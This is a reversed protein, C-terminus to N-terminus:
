YNLVVIENITGRKGAKSNIARRAEVIEIRLTKIRFRAYLQRVFDTDSNSLMVKCGRNALEAFTCALIEQQEQGFSDASYSTFNATDSLPDYPPDFYVFDGPGAHSVAERFDQVALTVDQLAISAASLREIDLIAPNKYTGMPVNFFGQSNVRWLGNYCTKNLYIMRAARIFKPRSTWDPDRDWDRVRYYYKEADARHEAVHKELETIVADLDSQVAEYCTILEENLDSLYYHDFLRQGQLAFFVAGSGVFPEYYNRMGERPFFPAYQELLQGKGGAWKLFPQALTINQVM